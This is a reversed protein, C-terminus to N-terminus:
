NTLEELMIFLLLSSAGRYERVTILDLLEDIPMHLFSKTQHAYCFFVATVGTNSLHIVEASDVDAFGNLM